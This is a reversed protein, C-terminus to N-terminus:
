KKRRVPAAFDGLGPLLRSVDDFSRSQNDRIAQEIEGPFAKAYNVASKVRDVPWELHRSTKNVDNRYSRLLAVVQWVPTRAGQVYAQRGVPSDRFDIFAFEDRRLGEELLLAGTESASRGLQRAKRQLRKAQDASVRLSVVTSM